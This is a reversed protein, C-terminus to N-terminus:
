VFVPGIPSARPHECRCYVPCCGSIVFAGGTCHIQVLQFFSTSVYVSWPFIWTTLHSSFFFALFMYNIIKYKLVLIHTLILRPFLVSSCVGGRGWSKGRTSGASPCDPISPSDGKGTEGARLRERHTNQQEASRVGRISTHSTHRRVGM